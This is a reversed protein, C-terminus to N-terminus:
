LPFNLEELLVQAAWFVVVGELEGHEGEAIGKFFFVSIVQALGFIAEDPFDWGGDSM